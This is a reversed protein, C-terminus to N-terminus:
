VSSREVQMFRGDRMLANNEGEDTEEVKLIISDPNQIDAIIVIVKVNFILLTESTCGRFLM